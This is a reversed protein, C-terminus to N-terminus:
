RSAAIQVGLQKGAVGLDLFLVARVREAMAPHTGREKEAHDLPPGHEHLVGRLDLRRDEHQQATLVRDGVGRGATLEEVADARLVLGQRDIGFHQVLGQVLDAALLDRSTAPTSRPWATVKTLGSRLPPRALRKALRKVELVSLTALVQGATMGTRVILEDVGSPRDDLQGLLSRELDSLALERRTACRPSARIQGFKM